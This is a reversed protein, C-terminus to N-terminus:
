ENVAVFIYYRYGYHFSQRGFYAKTTLKGGDPEDISLVYTGEPIGIKNRTPDIALVLTKDEGSPVIVVDWLASFSFGSEHTLEVNILPESKKTLEVPEIRTASPAVPADSKVLTSPVHDAPKEAPEEITLDKSTWGGNAGPLSLIEKAGTQAPEGSEDNNMELIRMVFDEPDLGDQTEMSRGGSVTPLELTMGKQVYGGREVRVGTGRNALSDIDISKKIVETM